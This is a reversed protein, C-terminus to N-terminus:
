IRSYFSENETRNFDELEGGEQIPAGSGAEYADRTENFFRIQQNSPRRPVFNVESEFRNVPSVPVPHVQHAQYDDVAKQMKIRWRWLTNLLSLSMTSLYAINVAEIGLDTKLVLVASLIIGMAMAPIRIGMVGHQDKLGRLQLMPTYYVADCISGLSTWVTMRSLIASIKPDHIGSIALLAEPYIAFILPIISSAIVSLFIGMCAAPYAQHKRDSDAMIPNVVFSTSMAFNSGVWFNISIYLLVLAFAAQSERDVFGSLVSLAFIFITESIIILSIPMADMVQKSLPITQSRRCQFLHTLLEFRQYKKDYFLYYAYLLTTGYLAIGTGLVIGPSGLVDYYSLLAATIVGTGVFAFSFQQAQIAGFGYIMQRLCIGYTLAPLNIAYYRLFEEADDSEQQNQKFLDHLITGSGIMIPITIPLAMSSMYFGNRFLDIIQLRILEQDELSMQTQELQSYLKSVDIKISFLLSNSVMVVTNSYSCILAIADEHVTDHAVFSLFFPLLFTTATMDTAMQTVARFSIQYGIDRLCFDQKQNM